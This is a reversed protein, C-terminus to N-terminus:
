YYAGDVGVVEIGQIAQGALDAGAHGGELRVHFHQAVAQGDGASREGFGDRGFLAVVHEDHLIGVRAAQGAHAGDLAGHTQVFREIVVADACQDMGAALEVYKRAHFGQVQRVVQRAARFQARQKQVGIVAAAVVALQQRFATEQEDGLERVQERFLQDRFHAAVLRRVAARRKIFAQAAVEELHIEVM